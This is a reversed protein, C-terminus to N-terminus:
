MCWLSCLIWKGSVKGGGRTPSQLPFFLGVVWCAVLDELNRFLIIRLSLEKRWLMFDMRYFIFICYIYSELFLILILFVLFLSTSFISEWLPLSWSNKTQFEITVAETLTKRNTWNIALASPSSSQFNLLSKCGFYVSM